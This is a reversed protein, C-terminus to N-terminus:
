VAGGALGEFFVGDRADIELGVLFGQGVVLPVVTEHALPGAGLLAIALSHFSELIKEFLGSSVALFSTTIVSCVLETKRGSM